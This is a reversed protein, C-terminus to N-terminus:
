VRTDGPGQRTAEHHEDLEERWGDDDDDDDYGGEVEEEEQQAPVGEVSSPNVGGVGTSNTNRSGRSSFLVTQEALTAIGREM